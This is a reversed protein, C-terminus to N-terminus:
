WEGGPHRGCDIREPGTRAKWFEITMLEMNSPVDCGGCMLPVIHNVAFGPPLKKLGIMKLFLNHRAKSRVVVGNSDRVRCTLDPTELARHRFSQSGQTVTMLDWAAVASFLSVLFVLHIWRWRTM